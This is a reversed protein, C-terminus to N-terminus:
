GKGCTRNSALWGLYSGYAGAAGTRIQAPPAPRGANRGGGTGYRSVWREICRQHTDMNEM